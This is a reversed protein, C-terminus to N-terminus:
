CTVPAEYPMPRRPRGSMSIVVASAEVVNNQDCFKFTGNPWASGSAKFYVYDPRKRFGLMVNSYNINHLQLIPEALDYKRNRNSDSFVLWGNKWHNKNGCRQNNNPCVMVRTNESIAYNRALHLHTLLLEAQSELITSTTLRSFVPMVVSFLSFAIFMSVVCELLSFGTQM